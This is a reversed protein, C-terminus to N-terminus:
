PTGSEGSMAGTLTALFAEVADTYAGPSGLQRNIDQHSLDEELVRARVGLSAARAAFGKAQRCSDGRRSSCVVLFPRAQANMADIPSAMKWSAPNSGFAADYLRPHRAQMIAPVDLAASDLLVAGLWPRAGNQMAIAPAADLLAALHAGASHGMLIFRSPDGGWAAASRQAAALALAVDGAQQLPLALPLMRYNVSVVIYGKPVWRAVKNEVVNRMAKDGRRWGGGHVMFIVPAHAAHAPKYVDFRQLRDSGYSQDRLMTVADPLTWGIGDADDDALMEEQANRQQMGRREALRERLLGASAQRVILMMTVLMLLAAMALARKKTM